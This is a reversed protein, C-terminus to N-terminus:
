TLPEYEYESIEDELQTRIRKATQLDFPKTVTLHKKTKDCTNAPQDVLTPIVYSIKSQSLKKELADESFGHERM